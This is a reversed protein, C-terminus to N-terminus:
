LVLGIMEDFTRGAAPPDIAAIQALDELVFAGQGM